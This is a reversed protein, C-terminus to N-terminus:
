ESEQDAAILSAVRRGRPTLQYGDGTLVALELQVLDKLSHGADYLRPREIKLARAIADVKRPGEVLCLLIDRLRASTPVGDTNAEPYDDGEVIVEAISYTWKFLCAAVGPRKLGCVLTDTPLIRRREALDRLDRALDLLAPMVHTGDPPGLPQM